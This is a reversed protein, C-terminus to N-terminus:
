LIWLMEFLEQFCIGCKQGACSFAKGGCKNSSKVERLNMIRDSEAYQLLSMIENPACNHICNDVILLLKYMCQCKDKLWHCDTIFVTSM